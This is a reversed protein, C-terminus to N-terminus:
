YIFPHYDFGLNRDITATYTKDLATVKLTDDTYLEKHLDPLDFKLASDQRNDTV